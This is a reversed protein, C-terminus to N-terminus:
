TWPRPDWSSLTSVGFPRYAQNRPAVVLGVEQQDALQPTNKRRRMSTIRTARTSSSGGVEPSYGTPLPDVDTPRSSNPWAARPGGTSRGSWRRRWGVPRESSPPRAGASTRTRPRTAPARSRSARVPRRRARGSTRRCRGRFGSGRTPSPRADDVRAEGTGEGAEAAQRDEVEFADLRPVVIGSSIRSRIAAAASPSTWSRSASTYAVGTRSSSTARRISSIWAAPEFAATAAVGPAARRARVTRRRARRPGTGRGTAPRAARAVERRAVVRERELLEGPEHRDGHGHAIRRVASAANASMSCPAAATKTPTPGPAAHVVRSTRPMPTGCTVAILSTAAARSAKWGLGASVHRHDGVAPHARPPSSALATAAPASTRISPDGSARASSAGPRPIFQPM